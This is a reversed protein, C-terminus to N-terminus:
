LQIFFETMEYKRPDEKKAKEAAAKKKREERQIRLGLEILDDSEILMRVCSLLLDTNKSKLHLLYPSRWLEVLCPGLLQFPDCVCIYVKVCM